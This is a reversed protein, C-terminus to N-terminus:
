SSYDTTDDELNSENEAKLIKQVRLSEEQDKLCTQAHELLGKLAKIEDM